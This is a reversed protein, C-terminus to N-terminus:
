APLPRCTWTESSSLSPRFMKVLSSGSCFAASRWAIPPTSSVRGADIANRQGFTLEYRRKPEAKKTGFAGLQPRSLRVTARRTGVPAGSATRM